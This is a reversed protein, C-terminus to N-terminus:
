PQGELKLEDRVTLSLLYGVAVVVACGVVNYWLFSIETTVSVVWVALVGCFLGWFAGRARARPVGIALVFVGLLSGYFFSGFKNVVEILSGLSTSYLAVICAFLGWFATAARGIRVYHADDAERKLHRRYFDIVTATALANLEAAISSMAAAFIAAIILGIVGAPMNQVVFTPFVYNVDTFSKNGSTEKVLAVSRARVAGLNQESALYSAREAAVSAEDGSERAALYNNAATRRAAHAREYDAALAQYEAGRGGGEIRRVEQQNFIVPPREFQYFVFVLVGILLILFQMPIKVFASMLLSVRGEDVSKATLFRQVQSQDCGFYALMLFLGGILGSWLTYTEKPNFSTDITTLRGTSGALALADGFSVEPPFKSLIIFLCVGLGVFIIVMQKVDTWTVAQVGGVMTYLTTTLGMAFITATESWGLVISLIVSPAAIIVGVSLGRSLLFCFSTLTRTKLDFRKELYEYATFVKARYFFPVATVCLIVMALPLGYYFQIFRMGNAYAQGTTGVLTIASLQTAMVSLGVAWWPLSRNALFYGEVERSHKTMRVGDWIMYILYAAVVAWDLLRM